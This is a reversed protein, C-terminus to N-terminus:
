ETLKNDIEIQQSNGSDQQSDESNNEEDLEQPLDKDPVAYRGRKLKIIEGDLLLRQLQMNTNSGDTNKDRGLIDRVEQVTAGEKGKARLCLLIERRPDPTTTTIPQKKSFAEIDDPHTNIDMSIGGYFGEVLKYTFPAINKLWSKPEKIFVTKTGGALEMSIAFGGKRLLTNSGIFDDIDIPRSQESSLRKRIHHVLAVALNYKEALRELFNTVPKVDKSDNENGEFFSVFSDIFLTDPRRYDILATINRRGEDNDLMLPIGARESEKLDVIAFNDYNRQLGDGEELLRCRREMERKPLEGALILCKRPPENEKFGGFITGGRSMDRAWRIISWSKGVGAKGALITLYGRTFCGGIREPEPIATNRDYNRLLEEFIATKGGQANDENDNSNSMAQQSDPQTNEKPAQPQSESQSAGQSDKSDQATPKPHPTTDNGDGNILFDFDDM